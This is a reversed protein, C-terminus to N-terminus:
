CFQATPLFVTLMGICEMLGVLMFEAPYPQAILHLVMFTVTIIMAVGVKFAVTEKALFTASLLFMLKRIMVVAEWWIRNECFGGYLFGYKRSTSLEDMTDRVSYLLFGFLVPIGTAYLGLGTIGAITSWRQYENNSFM